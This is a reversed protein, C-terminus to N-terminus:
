KYTSIIETNWESEYTGLPEINLYFEINEIKGIGNFNLQDQDLDIEFYSKCNNLATNGISSFGNDMTYDNVIVSEVTYDVYQGSTNTICYVYNNKDNKVYEVKIGDSEYINEGVPDLTNDGGIHIQETEFSKFMADNDYAWFLFDAAKIDKPKIGYEDLKEKEIEVQFNAKKGSAVDTSNVGVRNEVLVTGNLSVAYPMIGLNLQSNNEAYIKLYINESDDSIDKTELILGNKECIKQNEILSEASATVASFAVSLVVSLLLVKKRM